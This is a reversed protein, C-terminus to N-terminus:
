FFLITPSLVSHNFVSVVAIFYSVYYNIISFQIGQFLHSQREANKFLQKSLLMENSGVLNMKANM